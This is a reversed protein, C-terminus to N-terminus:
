LYSVDSHIKEDDTFSITRCFEPFSKEEHIQKNDKLRFKLTVDGKVNFNTECYTYENVFKLVIVIVVKYLNYFIILKDPLPRIKKTRFM